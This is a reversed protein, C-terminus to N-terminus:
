CLSRTNRFGNNPTGTTQVRSERPKRPNEPFSFACLCLCIKGTVARTPPTERGPPWPDGSRHGPTLLKHATHPVWPIYVNEDPYGAPLIDPVRGPPDTVPTVSFNNIHWINIHRKRGRSETIEALGANLGKNTATQTAKASCTAGLADERLIQLNQTHTKGIIGQLFYSELSGKQLPSEPVFGPQRNAGPRKQESGIPRKRSILPHCVHVKEFTCKTRRSM